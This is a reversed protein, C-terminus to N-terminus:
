PQTTRESLNLYTQNTDPKRKSAGKSTVFQREGGSLLVAGLLLFHCRTLTKLDAEPFGWM